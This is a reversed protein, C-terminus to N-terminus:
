VDGGYHSLLAPQVAWRFFRYIRETLNKTISILHDRSFTGVKTDYMDLDLIWSPSDIPQGHLPDFQVGPPIQGWRGRLTANGVQFQTDSVSHLLAAGDGADATTVGLVEPRVLASLNCGLSNLPLRNIYRVGVRDCSSPQVTDAVATLVTSLRDLFGERTKYLSTDLAVFSSALSVKWVPASPHDLFRWVTTPEGGSTIGDPALVINVEQDRRLVPYLTRIREQFPGIFDERAISMIPPFRVQAVVAVLPASPLHIEEVPEGFPTPVVSRDVTWM